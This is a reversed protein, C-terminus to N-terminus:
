GQRDRNRGYKNPGENGPMVCLAIFAVIMVIPIFLGVALIGPRGLDHLRKIGLAVYPWLTAFAVVMFISGWTAAEPSGEPVTLIRYLPFAQVLGILINALFYVARGIRGDARLFLWLYTQRDPM